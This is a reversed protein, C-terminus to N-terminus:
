STGAHPKLAPLIFFSLILIEEKKRERNKGEKLKGKIGKRKEKRGKKLKRNRNQLVFQTDSHIGIETKFSENNISQFL